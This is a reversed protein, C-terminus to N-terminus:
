RNDLKLPLVEWVFRVSKDRQPAAPPRAATDSCKKMLQDFLRFIIWKRCTYARDCARKLQGSLLSVRGTLFATPCTKDDGGM